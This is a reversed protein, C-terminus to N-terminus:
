FTNLKLNGQNGGGRLNNFNGSTGPRQNDDTINANNIEM